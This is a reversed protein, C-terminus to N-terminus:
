VPLLSKLWLERALSSLLHYRFSEGAAHQVRASVRAAKILEIHHRLDEPFTSPDFPYLISMANAMRHNFDAKGRVMTFVAQRLRQRVSLDAAWDPRKSLWDM